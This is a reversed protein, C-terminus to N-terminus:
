MALHIQYQSVKYHRRAEEVSGIGKLEMAYNNHMKVNSPLVKVGSAYLSLDSNWDQSTLTCM